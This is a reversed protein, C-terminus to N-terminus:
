EDPDARRIRGVTLRVLRHVAAGLPGRRGVVCPTYRGCGECIDPIGDTYWDDETGGDFEAECRPCFEAM